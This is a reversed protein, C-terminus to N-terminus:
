SGFLADIGARSALMRSGSHAVGPVVVRHLTAPSGLVAEAAKYYNTGRAFRHEGQAMAACGSDLDPDETDTDRDGLLLWTPVTAAQSRIEDTRKRSMFRNRDALGFKWEDYRRCSSAGPRRLTGSRDVRRDDLFAYSGPNMPVFRREVGKTTPVDTGLIYRQTFQGGASHGTVVIRRLNPYRAKTLQRVVRDMVEFSSMQWASTLSDDGDKWGGSSWYLKGSSSDSNARFLPAVILTSDSADAKKAASYAYRAYDSANRNTGHVVVVATRVSSDRSTTISGNSWYDLGYSTGNQSIEFTRESLSTSLASAPSAFLPALAAGMVM